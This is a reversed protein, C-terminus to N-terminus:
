EVEAPAAEAKRAGRLNLVFLGVQLTILAYAQTHWGWAVWLLNSAVFCWFGWGRKRTNRSAVLWAALLTVVMAPWQLANLLDDM